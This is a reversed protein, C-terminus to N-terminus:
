QEIQRELDKVKEELKENDKQVFAFIESKNHETDAKASEAAAKSEDLKEKEELQEKLQQCELM